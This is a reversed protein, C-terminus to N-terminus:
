VTQTTSNNHDPRLQSGPNGPQVSPTPKCFIHMTKMQVSSAVFIYGGGPNVSFRQRHEQHEMSLLHNPVATLLWMTLCFRDIIIFVFEMIRRKRCRMCTSTFRMWM